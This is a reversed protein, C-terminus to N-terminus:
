VQEATVTSNNGPDVRHVNAKKVAVVAFLGWCIALLLILLGVYITSRKRRQMLAEKSYNTDDEMVMMRTGNTVEEDGLHGYKVTDHYNSGDDRSNIRGNEYTKDQWWFILTAVVCLFSLAAFLRLAGLDDDEHGLEIGDPTKTYNIHKAHADLVLGAVTQSLTAGINDLSKYLGLGTSVHETLLPVLSVVTLPALAFAIAFFLIPPFPHILQTPLLLLLYTLLMAIAAAM